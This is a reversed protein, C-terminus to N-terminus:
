ITTKKIIIEILKKPNEKNNLINYIAQIIPCKVRKRKLIPYIANLTNIGEVTNEELFKKIEKKGAKSGIMKGYTFNRSKDTSCTLVLDGFGALSNQTALTSNYKYLINGLEEFVTTLYLAKTSENYELGNIIGSGIAYINKVCGCVSTGIIDDTLDIRVDDFDFVKKFKERSKKDKSALTFGIPELNAIDAAFTPGSIVSIKNKLYKKAIDCVLKKSDSAIGKSGVCVPIEPKILKRIEKCVDDLYDVCPMLFVVEADIIAEEYANTISINKPISKDKFITNLKKTKKYDEVLKENESWMVIKNDKNSALTLAIATSYVGTGIIGIKM